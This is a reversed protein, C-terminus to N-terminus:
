IDTQSHTDLTKAHPLCCQSAIPPPAKEFAFFCFANVMNAPEVAAYIQQQLMKITFDTSQQLIFHREIMTLFVFVFVFKFVFVCVSSERVYLVISDFRNFRAGYYLNLM